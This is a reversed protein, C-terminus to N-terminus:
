VLSAMQLKWKLNESITILLIKGKEHVLHYIASQDIIFIM